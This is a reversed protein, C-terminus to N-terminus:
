NRESPDPLNSLYSAFIQITLAEEINTLEFEKVADNKYGDMSVETGEEITISDVYKCSAILYGVAM